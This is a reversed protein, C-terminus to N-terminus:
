PSIFFTVAMGLEERGRRVTGFTGRKDVEAFYPSLGGGFRTAISDLNQVSRPDIGAYPNSLHSYRKVM